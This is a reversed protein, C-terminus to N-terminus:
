GRHLINGELTLIGGLLRQKNSIGNQNLAVKKHMRVIQYTMILQMLADVAVMCVVTLPRAGVLSIAIFLGYFLNIHTALNCNARENDSGVIRNMLKSLFFGVFRKSIPILIAMLCQADTNTLKQGKHNGLFFLLNSLHNRANLRVRIYM